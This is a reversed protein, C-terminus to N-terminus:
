GWLKWWPRRGHRALFKDEDDNLWFVAGPIQLLEPADLRYGTFSRCVELVLDGGHFALSLPECQPHSRSKYLTEGGVQIRDCNALYASESPLPSDEDGFITGDFGYFRRIV